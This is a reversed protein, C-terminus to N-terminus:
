RTAASGEGRASSARTSEWLPLASFDFAERLPMEKGGLNTGSASVGGCM